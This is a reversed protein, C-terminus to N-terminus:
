APVTMFAVRLESRRKSVSVGAGLVAVLLLGLGALVHCQDGSVAGSATFGIGLLAACGSLTAIRVSPAPVSFTPSADARM